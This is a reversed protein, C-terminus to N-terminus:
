EAIKETITSGMIQLKRLVTKEAAKVHFWKPVNFAVLSYFDRSFDILEFLQLASCFLGPKWKLIASKSADNSRLCIWKESCITM